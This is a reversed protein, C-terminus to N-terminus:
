KASLTRLYEEELERRTKHKPWAYGYTQCVWGAFQQERLTHHRVLPGVMEEVEQPLDGNLELYSFAGATKHLRVLWGHGALEVTGTKRPGFFVGAVRAGQAVLQGAIRETLETPTDPVAGSAGYFQSGLAHARTQDAKRPLRVLTVPGVSNFKLIALDQNNHHQVIDLQATNAATTTNM